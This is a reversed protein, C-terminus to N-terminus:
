KDDEHFIRRLQVDRNRQNFYVSLYFDGKKGELETSCVMMYSKEGKLKLRGSNEREKKIPGCFVLKKQDFADFHEVGKPLEFICVNAYHLQESFPYESYSGEVPLRGGLQTLSIM